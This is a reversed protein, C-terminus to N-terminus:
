WSSGIKLEMVIKAAKVSVIKTDPFFKVKHFILDTYSFDTLDNWNWDCYTYLLRFCKKM